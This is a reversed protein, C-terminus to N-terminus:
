KICTFVCFTDIRTGFPVRTGWACDAFNDVVFWFTCAGISVNSGGKCVTSWTLVNENFAIM